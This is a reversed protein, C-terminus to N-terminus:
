VLGANIDISTGNLYDNSVIFKVARHINEPNGFQGTPIKAKVAQLFEVPVETIMGIDFYGLNLNNITIGKKANEAALARTLGWLGSKSASYASTGAVGMQAVVSAFNIIRGWEQDRMIPLFASIVHFTGILNVKIVEEWREMVVKHGVANYNTGACNVLVVHQLHAKIRQVWDDIQGCDSIDVKFLTGSGPAQPLTHCYTGLVIEGEGSLREFLFKGIGRSAGTIIYM